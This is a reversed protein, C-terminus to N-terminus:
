RKILIAHENNNYIFLRDKGHRIEDVHIQIGPTPLNGYDDYILIGGVVLRPWIWEYADKASQYTDVDIHCFKIKDETIHYSTEEPFIGELIKINQLNYRFVLSQVVAMTAEGFCGNKVYDGDIEGGKVTGTFTDCLYVTDDPSFMRVAQALIVGSGGKWCGVEIVAGDLHSIQSLLDWLEWCREIEVVTNSGMVGNYIPHFVEDTEWPRYIEKNM